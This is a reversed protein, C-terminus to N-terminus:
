RETREEIRQGDAMTAPPNAVLRTGPAPGDLLEYGGGVRAGLRVSRRRAIGDEFVFVSQQGSRTVVAESPLVVTSATRLQEDTLPEDLFSVRAAMDALVADTPDIFRVRVTVTARARDVRQGIEIAEGRFRRGPFADLVIECPGGIRVLGLRAEPVDTEVVLTRMDAIQMLELEPYAVGGVDPPETIVTGDTSAVIRVQKAASIAVEVKSAASRAEAEAAAVAAELSRARAELDDLAARAASGQEVLRRQRHVQIRVEELEARTTAARALTVMRESRAAAVAREADLPDLEVLLDGTHVTDGERVPVRVIRGTVAAGVHSVVQPVVYGTSTLTTSSQTPSVRVVETLRVKTEFVRAELYPWAASSTAVLLVPVAVWGMWSRSRRARPAAKTASRDIKLSALDNSLEDPM